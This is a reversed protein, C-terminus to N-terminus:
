VSQMRSVAHPQSRAHTRSVAHSQSRAVLQTRTVAHLQSRAVSQTRAVAHAHVKHRLCTNAHLIQLLAVRSQVCPPHYAHAPEVLVRVGHERERLHEEIHEEAEAEHKQLDLTNEFYTCVCDRNHNRSCNHSVGVAVQSVAVRSVVVRSVVVRCAAVAVAVIACQTFRQM